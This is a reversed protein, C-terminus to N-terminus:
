PPKFKFKLNAFAMITTSHSTSWWFAKLPIPSFSLTTKTAVRCYIFRCNINGLEENTLCTWSWGISTKKSGKRRQGNILVSSMHVGTLFFSLAFLLAFLAIFDLFWHHNTTNSVVISYTIDSNATNPKDKDIAHIGRFVTLGIPTLQFHM